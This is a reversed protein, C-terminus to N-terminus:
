CNASLAADTKTGTTRPTEITVSITQITAPPPQTIPSCDATETRRMAQGQASPRAVGIARMTPMPRAARCPIRTRSAAESWFRESAVRSASSLVPVRVSPRGSSVPIWGRTGKVSDSRRESVAEASCPLSCGRARATRRAARSRPSGTVGAVPNVAHGPPPILARRASRSIRIPLMGKRRSRPTGVASRSDADDREEPPRIATAMPSLGAPIRVTASVIRGDAAESTSSSLERPMVAAM